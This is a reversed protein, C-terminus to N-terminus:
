QPPAAHEKEKRAACAKLDDWFGPQSIGEAELKRRTASAEEERRDLYAQVEDKHALYYALVAYVDELRLTDYSHVIEEPGAGDEFRSVISDLTVRTDAVRVAGAEDIRLPVPLPQVTLSM